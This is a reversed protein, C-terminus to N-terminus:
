DSTPFLKLSPKFWSSVLRVLCLPQQNYIALARLVTKSSSLRTLLTGLSTELPFGASSPNFLQIKQSCTQRRSKIKKGGEGGKHSHRGPTQNKPCPLTSNTYLWAYAEHHNGHLVKPMLLISLGDCSRKETTNTDLNLAYLCCIFSFFSLAVTVETKRWNQTHTHSIM